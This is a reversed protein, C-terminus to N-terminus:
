VDDIGRKGYKMQCVCNSGCKCRSKPRPLSNIEQWGLSAYYICDDCHNHSAGLVRKEINMGIGIAKRGEITSASLEGSKAFLELRHEIMALSQSPADQLLFKLGFQKGTVPDVGAYYQKKLISGITGLDSQTLNDIGNAAIIAHSLHINKLLTGVKEYVGINGTQIQPALAVLERVQKQLFKQQLSIAAERSAFQKTDKYRYRKTVRDYELETALSDKTLRSQTTVM